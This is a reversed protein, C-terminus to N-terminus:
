ASDCDDIIYREKKKKDKLSSEKGDAGGDDMDGTVEDDSDKKGRGETPKSPTAVSPKTPLRKVKTINVDASTNMNSSESDVDVLEEPCDELVHLQSMMLQQEASCKLLEKAPEDFMVMVTSAIKDSVDLELRFRLVPYDVAKECAQCWFSGNKRVIGKKCKEGDCGPFNWREKRLRLTTPMSPLRNESLLAHLAPIQPNDLIQTSSGSSLYLKYGEDKKKFIDQYIISLNDKNREWIDYEYSRIAIYEENPGISYQIAEFKEAKCRRKNPQKDDNNEKRKTQKRENEKEIDRVNYTKFFSDAATNSPNEYKSEMRENNCSTSNDVYRKNWNGNMWSHFIVKQTRGDFKKHNKFTMNVNSLFELPDIGWNEGEDLMEDEGDYSEPYFRCFFKKVLEEWTTIKGEGGPVYILDVMKLVKAIYEVVDDNYTGQYMNKRLEVLFKGNLEIEIDNSTISLNPKTPAKEIDDFIPETM